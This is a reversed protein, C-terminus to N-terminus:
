VYLGLDHSEGIARSCMCRPAICQILGMGTIIHREDGHPCAKTRRENRLKQLYPHLKGSPAKLTKSYDRERKTM